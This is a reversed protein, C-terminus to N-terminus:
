RTKFTYAVPDLPVGGTSKFNKFSPSNLGLHYEWNPQLEVPLICTMKDETWYPKKGNPITPFQPGGGTWSCGGSMPVNFTVRLEKLGPDVEKDGNRPTLGVIRPKSIQNKLQQSAGQTTFYLSTPNAPVGDASQFNHYSPSNIGVRYLHGRELTVPLVCTRKDRWYPKAGEPTPPYEPGGGTWSFGGGMDRDFTVTIEKLGPDVDSQGNAPATSVIQPPGQPDATSSEAAKATVFAIAASTLVVAALRPAGVTRFRTNGFTMKMHNM